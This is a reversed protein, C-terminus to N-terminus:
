ATDRDHSRRTVEAPPRSESAGRDDSASRVRDLRRGPVGGHDRAAGDARRRGMRDQVGGVGVRGPRRVGEALLRRRVRKHGSGPPPHDGSDPFGRRMGRGDVSLVLGRVARRGHDARSTICARAPDRTAEPRTRARKGRQRLMNVRKRSRRRIRASSRKTRRKSVDEGEM